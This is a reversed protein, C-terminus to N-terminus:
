KENVLAVILGLLTLLSAALPHHLGLLLLGLQLLLDGQGDSGSALLLGDSNDLTVFTQWSM